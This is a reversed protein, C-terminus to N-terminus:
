PSKETVFRRNGWKRQLGAAAIGMYLETWSGLMLPASALPCKPDKPLSETMIENRVGIRKKAVITASSNAAPM